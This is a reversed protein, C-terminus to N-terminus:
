YSLTLLQSSAKICVIVVVRIGNQPTGSGVKGSGRIKYDAHPWGYECRGTPIGPIKDCSTVGAFGLISFIGSILCNLWTEMRQKM